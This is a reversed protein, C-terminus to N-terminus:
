FGLGVLLLFSRSKYNESNSVTSLKLDSLGYVYRGEISLGSVANLTVGGGIVGAYTTKSRGSPCDGGGGDCNLEFSAQPGAYAFPTVLPNSVAARLYFPVDVYKYKQSGGSASSTFGREAYLADVGWGIIGGSQLGVGLAVGSHSKLSAIDEPATGFSYGAKIGLGQAALMGPGFLVVAVSLTCVARVCLSM